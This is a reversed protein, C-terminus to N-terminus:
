ATVGTTVNLTEKTKVAGSLHKESQSSSTEKNDTSKLPSAALISPQGGASVGGVLPRGTASREGNPGSWRDDYRLKKTDILNMAFSEGGEGGGQYELKYLPKFGL